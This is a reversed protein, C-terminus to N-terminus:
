PSTPVFKMCERSEIQTVSVDCSGGVSTCSCVVLSGTGISSIANMVPLGIKCSSKPSQKMTAVQADSAPRPKAGIRFTKAQDKSRNVGVLSESIVVFYRAGNQAITETM